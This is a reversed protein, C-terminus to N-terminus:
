KLICTTILFIMYWLNWLLAWQFHVLLCVDDVDVCKVSCFLAFFWCSDKSKTWAPCLPFRFVWFSHLSSKVAWPSQLFVTTQQGPPKHWSDITMLRELSARAASKLPYFSQQGLHPTDKQTWCALNETNPHWLVEWRSRGLLAWDPHLSLFPCLDRCLLQSARKTTCSYM